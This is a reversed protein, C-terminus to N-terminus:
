ALDLGIDFQGIYGQDDETLALLLQRGGNRFIGDNSNRTRRQGRTNYPARTYIRDSLADEFYLQSTFEYGRESAGTGRIKFHIHVTRGPYWGPYITIFEVRGAADTIQAGRLWQQGKTSFNRDVVDSYAGTADCHWVDVLADKLPQCANARVQSVRLVLRLPVGPKVAGNTPDRRIDRRNLQEDVFYPGETQQPRVICAPPAAIATPDNLQQASSGSEQTSATPQRLCGILSVVTTGSILRLVQRRTLIAAAATKPMSRVGPM